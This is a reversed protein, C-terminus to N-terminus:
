SWSLGPDLPVQANPANGSLTAPTVLDFRACSAEGLSLTDTWSSVPGFHHTIISPRRDLSRTLDKKASTAANSQVPLAPYYYVASSDMMGRRGVVM